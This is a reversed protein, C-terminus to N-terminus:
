SAPLLDLQQQALTYADTVDAGNSVTVNVSVEYDGQWALVWITEKQLLDTASVPTALCISDPVASDTCVRDGSANGGYELLTAAKAQAPDGYKLLAADVDAGNAATWSRHEASQFGDSGLWTTFGDSSNGEYQAAYDSADLQESAAYSSSTTDTAGAPLPLLCDGSAPCATQTAAPLTPATLSPLGMPQTSASQNVLDLESQAWSTATAPDFPGYFYLWGNVIVNGVVQMFYFDVFGSSDKKSSYWAQAGPENPITFSVGTVGSVGTGTWDPEGFNSTGLQTAGSATITQVLYLDAQKETNDTTWDEHGIGTVGDSSFTAAVSQQVAATDWNLQIFQNSTLTSGKVWLKSVSSAWRQGGHPMSVLCSGLGAACATQQTGPAVPPSDPAAPPATRVSALETGAWTELDQASLQKPSSYTVNLVLDGVVTSYAADLNGHSDLKTAAYAKATSDSPITIAQGRYAALIEATRTSNWAQADQQSPFKLLVLDVDDGDVANWDTHVIKSLYDSGLLAATDASVGPTDQYIVSQYLDSTSTTQQNWSNVTDGLQVAGAPAKILCTTLDSPECKVAAVISNGTRGSVLAFVGAGALALVLIGATVTWLVRKRKRKAAPPAPFADPSYLNPQVQGPQGELPFPPGYYPTTSTAQPPPQFQPQPQPHPQPQFQPLPTIAVTQDQPGQATSDPAAWEQTAASRSTEALEPAPAPAPESARAPELASEPEPEPPTSEAAPPAATPESESM